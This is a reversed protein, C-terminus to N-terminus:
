NNNLKYSIYLSISSNKGDPITYTTGAFEREKGITSLGYNYRAGIGVSDFDFGIGGSIGVDFKNFDDNDYADEFDIASGNADNNRRNTITTERMPFQARKMWKAKMITSEYGNEDNEEYIDDDDDDQSNQPIFMLEDGVYENKGSFKVKKSPKVSNEQNVNELDDIDDENFLDRKKQIIMQSLHYSTYYDWYIQLHMFDVSMIM